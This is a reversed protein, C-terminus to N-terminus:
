GHGFLRRFDLLKRFFCFVLAAGDAPLRHLNFAAAESIKQATRVVRVAFAYHFNPVFGAELARVTEGGVRPPVLGAVDDLFFGAASAPRKVGTRAVGVAVENHIFFGFGFGFKLIGVLM